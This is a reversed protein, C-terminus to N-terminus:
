LTGDYVGNRLYVATLTNEIWLLLKNIKPASMRESIVFSSLKKLYTHKLLYNKEQELSTM